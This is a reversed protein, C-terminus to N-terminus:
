RSRDPFYVIEYPRMSRMEGQSEREYPRMSEWDREREREYPRMGEWERERERETETERWMRVSDRARELDRELGELGKNRKEMERRCQRRGPREWKLWSPRSDEREPPPLQKLERHRVTSTLVPEGLPRVREFSPRRGTNVQRQFEATQDRKLSERNVPRSPSRSYERFRVPSKPRRESILDTGRKDTSAIAVEKSKKEHGNNPPVESETKSIGRVESELINSLSNFRVM